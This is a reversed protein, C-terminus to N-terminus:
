EGYWCTYVGCIGVKWPVTDGLRRPKKPASCPEDCNEGIAETIGVICDCPKAPPECRNPPPAYAGFPIGCSGEANGGEAPM